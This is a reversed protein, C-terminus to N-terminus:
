ESTPAIYVCHIKDATVYNQQWQISPGLNSLVPSYAGFAATSPRGSRRRLLPAGM